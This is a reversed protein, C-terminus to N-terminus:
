DKGYDCNGSIKGTLVDEMFGVSRGVTVGSSCGSDHFM